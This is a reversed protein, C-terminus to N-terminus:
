RLRMRVVSGCLLIEAEAASMGWTAAQLELRETLSDVSDALAKANDQAKGFNEWEELDLLHSPPKGWSGSGELKEKLAEVIKNQTELSHLAEEVKKALAQDRLELSKGWNPIGLGKVFDGWFGSKGKDYDLRTRQLTKEFDHKAKEAEAIKQRLFEGQHNGLGFSDATKLTAAMRRNLAESLQNALLTSREMQRNFEEVAQTEFAKTVSLGVATVAGVLGLAAVEGLKAGKALDGFINKASPQAVNNLNAGLKATAM